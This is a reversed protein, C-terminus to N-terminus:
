RIVHIQKGHQQEWRRTALCLSAVRGAGVGCSMALYMICILVFALKGTDPLFRVVLQSVVIGAVIQVSPNKWLGRPKSPDSPRPTPGNPDVRGTRADLQGNYGCPLQARFWSNQDRVFGVICTVIVLGMSGAWFLREDVSVLQQLIVSALTLMGMLLLMFAAFDMVRGFLVRTSTLHLVLGVIPGVIICGLWMRPMASNEISSAVLRILGAVLVVFGGTLLPSYRWYNLQRINM